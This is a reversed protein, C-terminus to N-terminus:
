NKKKLGILVSQKSFSGDPYREKPTLSYKVPSPLSMLELVQSLTEESFTGTCTFEKVNENVIRVDVNYWRELKKAIEPISDNKFILLGDKWAIYKRIDGSETTCNNKQSNYKNCEGPNLTEIRTSTGKEYIGLQGEVLTTKIINDGPYASVNFETGTAKIDLNKTSVVFPVKENHAVLFYAEGTLYVKRCKSDFRYPYRLKSGHNLWVKTGDGFEINMRFGAPAEVELENSNAIYRDKDSVNTYILLSLVPLLLIAAVRTIVQLMRNGSPSKGTVPQSPKLNINIKHHIIDLLRDYKIKNGSLDSNFEDWVEQVMRKGSITMSEEKIWALLKEFEEDTCNGNLYNIFIEKKM